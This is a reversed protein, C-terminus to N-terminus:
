KQLQEGSYKQHWGIYLSLLFLTIGLGLFVKTRFSLGSSRTGRNDIYSKAWGVGGENIMYRFRETVSGPDNKIPEGHQDYRSIDLVYEYVVDQADHNKPGGLHLAMNKVINEYELNRRERIDQHEPAGKSKKKTSFPDIHKQKLGKNGYAREFLGVHPAVHTGLEHALTKAIVPASNQQVFGTDLKITIYTKKNRVSGLGGEIKDGVNEYSTVMDDGIDVNTSTNGKAGETKGIRFEVEIFDADRAFASASEDPISALFIMYARNLKENETFPGEPNFKGQVPRNFNQIHQQQKRQAIAEPRRDDMAKARQATSAAPNFASSPRLAHQYM